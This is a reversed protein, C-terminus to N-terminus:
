SQIFIKGHIISCGDHIGSMKIEEIDSQFIYIGIFLIWFLIM